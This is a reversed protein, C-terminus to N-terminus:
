ISITIKTCPYLKFCTFINLLFWINNISSLNRFFPMFPYSSSIASPCTSFCVTLIISQVVAHGVTRYQKVPRIRQLLCSLMSCILLISQVRSLSPNLSTSSVTSHLADVFLMLSILNLSIIHTPCTADMSTTIILVNLLFIKFSFVVVFNHISQVITRFYTSSHRTLRVFVEASGFMGRPLLVEQM